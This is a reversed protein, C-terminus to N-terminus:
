SCCFRNLRHCGKNCKCSKRCVQCHCCVVQPSCPPCEGLCIVPASIQATLIDRLIVSNGMQQLDNPSQVSVFAFPIAADTVIDAVMNLCQNAMISGPPIRIFFNEGPSVQSIEMGNINQIIIGEVMPEFRLMIMLNQFVTNIDVEIRIPGVIISNDPLITAQRSIMAFFANLLTENAGTISANILYNILQVMKSSKPHLTTNACQVMTLTQGPPFLPAWIASQTAAFADLDNLIPPTTQDIGALAFLEASSINPYSNRLLWQIQNRQFETIAPLAEEFTALRYLDGSIPGVLDSNLCYALVSVSGQATDFQLVWEAFRFPGLDPQINLRYNNGPDALM